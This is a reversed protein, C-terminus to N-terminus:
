GFLSINFYMGQYFGAGAGARIFTIVDNQALDMYLTGSAFTHIQYANHNYHWTYYNAGNKYFGMYGYSSTYNTWGSFNVLYTGAVPATYQNSGNSWGNGININATGEYRNGNTTLNPNSCAIQSVPQNPTTIRGSSDITMRPTDNTTISVHHNSRAGMNMVGNTQSAMFQMTYAGSSALVSSYSSAHNVQITQGGFNAPSNTGIGLNGNSDKVALNSLDISNTGAAAPVTLDYYGSSTGSLRISSM